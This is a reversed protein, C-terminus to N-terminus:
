FFITTTVIKSIIPTSYSGYLRSEYDTCTYRFLIHCGKTGSSRIEAEYLELLLLMWKPPFIFQKWYVNSTLPQSTHVQSPSLLHHYPNLYLISKHDNQRSRRWHFPILLIRVGLLLSLNRSVANTRRWSTNICKPTSLHKKTQM